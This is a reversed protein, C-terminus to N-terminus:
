TAPTSAAGATASASAQLAAAWDRLPLEIVKAYRQVVRALAAAQQLAPLALTDISENAASAVTRLMEDDSDAARVPTALPLRRTMHLVTEDM